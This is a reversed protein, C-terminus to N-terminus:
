HGQIIKDYLEVLKWAHEPLSEVPGGAAAFKEAIAPDAAIRDIRDALEFIDGAPFNLGNIGNSIAESFAGIDSAIVPRRARFGERITIGYSEYWRSPMVLCDINALVRPLDEPQYAGYFSVDASRAMEALRQRYDLIGHYPVDEGYIHLSCGPTKIRKFARIVDEVGKSPILTGLYGFRRVPAAPARPPVQDLRSLDLGYAMVRAKDAPVGAEVMLRRHFESPMIFARVDAFYEAVDNHMRRLLEKGRQKGLLYAAAKAPRGALGVCQPMLCELCEDLNISKCVRKDKRIRQGLPCYPQHDSLTVVVPIGLRAATRILGLSLGGLHQVHVVDPGVWHLFEYFLGELWPRLYVERFDAHKALDVFVRTVTVAGDKAEYLEGHRSDPKLGRSFVQVSHAKALEATLGKLYVEVGGVREPPYGQTVFLIRM